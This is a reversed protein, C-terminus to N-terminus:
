GRWSPLSGVLIGGKVSSNDSNSREALVYIGCILELLRSEALILFFNCSSSASNDRSSSLSTGIITNPSLQHYPSSISLSSAFGSYRIPKCTDANQSILMLLPHSVGIIHILRALM